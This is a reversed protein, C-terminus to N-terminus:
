PIAQRFVRKDECSMGCVDDRDDFHVICIPCTERGMSEPLSDAASTVRVTLSSSGDQPQAPPVDAVTARPRRRRRSHPRVPDNEAGADAVTTTPRTCPGASTPFPETISCRSCRMLRLRSLPQRSVFVLLLGGCFRPDGPWYPTRAKRRRLHCRRVLRGM